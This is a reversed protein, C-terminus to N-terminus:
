LTFVPFRDEWKPRLLKQKKKGIQNDALHFVVLNSLATIEDPVNTFRNGRLSFFRLTRMQHLHEPLAELNNFELSVSVLDPLQLLEMPFENLRNNDAHFHQLRSLRVLKQPFGKLDNDSIDLWRLFKFSSIREFADDWDLDPNNRLSLVELNTFNAVEPPLLELQQQDLFLERVEQPTKM